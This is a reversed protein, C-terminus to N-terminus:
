GGKFDMSVWSVLSIRPEKISVGRLCDIKGILIDTKDEEVYRTLFTCLVKQSMIFSAYLLFYDKSIRVM